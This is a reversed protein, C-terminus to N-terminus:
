PAGESRPVLPVAARSATFTAGAVLVALLWACLAVAASQTWTHLLAGLAPALAAGTWMAAYFAMLAPQRERERARAAVEASAAPLYGWYGALFLGYGAAFLWLPTGGPLTLALGALGASLTAVMPARQGLRDSSRGTAWAAALGLLGVAPLSGAEGASLHFREERLAVPLQSLLLWYAGFGLFAVALVPWQRALMGPVDGGDEARQAAHMGPLGRWLALAAGLPAVVCVVALAVAAGSWEAILGVLAQGIFSGAIVAMVFGGIMRGRAAPRVGRAIVAQAVAPYGASAVGVVVRAGVAASPSGSLLLAASGAAALLLSSPLLLRPARHRAAGFWAFSGLGFGVAFPLLFVGAGSGHLGLGARIETAVPVPANASAYILFAGALLLAYTGRSLLPPPATSIASDDGTM